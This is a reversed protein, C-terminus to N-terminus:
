KSVKPAMAQLWDLEHPKILWAWRNVGALAGAIEILGSTDQSVTEDFHGVLSVVGDDWQVLMGAQFDAPSGEIWQLKHM